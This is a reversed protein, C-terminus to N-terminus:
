DKFDVKTGVYDCGHCLLVMGMEARLIANQISLEEVWFLTFLFLPLSIHACVSLAIPATPLLFIFSCIALFAGPPM